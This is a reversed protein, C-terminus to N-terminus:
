RDLCYSTLLMDRHGQGSIGWIPSVDHLVRSDQAYLTDLLQRMEYQELVKGSDSFITTVGGSINERAIHHLAIFDFGDRHPGEPSPLGASGPDGMVRVFHVNIEWTSPNRGLVAEFLSANHCLLSLLSVNAADRPELQAFTRRIGGAFKNVQDDQFYSGPPCVTVQGGQCRFKGHRRLRYRGGKLYPDTPLADWASILERFSQRCDALFQLETCSVISYGDSKIRQIIGSHSGKDEGLM